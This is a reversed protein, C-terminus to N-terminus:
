NGSVFGEHREGFAGGIDLHNPLILGHSRLECVWLREGQVRAWLRDGM